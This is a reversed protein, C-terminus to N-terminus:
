IHLLLSNLVEEYAKDLNYDCNVIVEFVNEVVDAPFISIFSDLDEERIRAPDWLRDQPTRKKQTAISLAPDFPTVDAQYRTGERSSHHPYEDETEDTDESELEQESESKESEVKVAKSELCTSPPSGPRKAQSIQKPEKVSSLKIIVKPAVSGSLFQNRDQLGIWLYHRNDTSMPVLSYRGKKAVLWNDNVFMCTHDAISSSFMEKIIILISELHVSYM